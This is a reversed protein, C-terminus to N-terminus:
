VFQRVIDVVAADILNISHCSLLSSPKRERIWALSCNEQSWHITTEAPLQHTNISYSMGSAGLDLDYSGFRPSIKLRECGRCSILSVM